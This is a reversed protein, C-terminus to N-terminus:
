TMLNSGEHASNTDKYLLGWLAGEGRGSHSSSGPLLSSGSLLHALAKVKLECGGSTYSIFTQQKFM